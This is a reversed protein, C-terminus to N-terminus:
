LSCQRHGQIHRHSGYLKEYASIISNKEPFHSGYYLGSSLISDQETEM